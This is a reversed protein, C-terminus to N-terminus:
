KNDEVINKLEDVSVIYSRFRHLMRHCNACVCILDTAPNIVTEEDLSSLPEIHHVEIYGKGLEGYVEQFDFGCIMCRTGHIRIAEERNHSNREYKTTYYGTKKGETQSEAVVYHTENSLNNEYTESSRIRAVLNCNWHYGRNFDSVYQKPVTSLVDEYSTKYWRTMYDNVGSLERKDFHHNEQLNRIYATESLRVQDNGVLYAEKLPRPLSNVDIGAKLYFRTQAGGAGSQKNDETVLTILSDDKTLFGLLEYYENENQFLLKNWGDLQAM